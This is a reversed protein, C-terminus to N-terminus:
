PIGRLELCCAITPQRTLVIGLSCGLALMVYCMSLLLVRLFHIRVLIVLVIALFLTPLRSSAARWRRDTEYRM